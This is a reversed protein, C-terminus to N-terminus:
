LLAEPSDGDNPYFATGSSCTVTISGSEITIPEAARKRIAELRRLVGKEDHKPNSFIIAFEDGGLRVAVDSARICSTIREALSRLVQDGVAHGYLDNIQKFNDLDI